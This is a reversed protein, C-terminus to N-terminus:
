LNHSLVTTIFNCVYCQYFYSCILVLLINFYLLKFKILICKKDFHLVFFTIWKYLNCISLHKLYFQSPTIVESPKFSTVLDRKNLSAFICVLCITFHFIFYIFHIIWSASALYPSKSIQFDMSTYIIDETKLLFLVIEIPCSWENTLMRNWSVSQSYCGCM